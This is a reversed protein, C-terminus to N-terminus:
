HILSGTDEAYEQRLVDKRRASKARFTKYSMDYKMFLWSVLTPAKHYDESPSHIRVVKSPGAVGPSHKPVNMYKNGAKVRSM